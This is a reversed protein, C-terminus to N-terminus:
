YGLAIWVIERGVNGVPNVWFAEKTTDTLAIDYGNGQCGSIWRNGIVVTTCKNPFTIPFWIKISVGDSSLIKRFSGQIFGGGPLKFVIEKLDTGRVETRVGQLLTELDKGDSLNVQSAITKFMIEDFTSGNDVKYIANKQAM